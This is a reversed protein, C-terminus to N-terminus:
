ATRLGASFAEYEATNNTVPFPLGEGNEVIVGARSGKSKSSRDAFVTWEETNGETHFTMEALYDAFVQAKLAKRL